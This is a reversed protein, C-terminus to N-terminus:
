CSQLYLYKYVNPLDSSVDKKQTEGDTQQGKKNRGRDACSSLQVVTSILAKHKMNSPWRFGLLTCVCHVCFLIFTFSLLVNPKWTLRQGSFYVSFLTRNNAWKKFLWGAKSGQTEHFWPVTSEYLLFNSETNKEKDQTQRIRCNESEWTFIRM